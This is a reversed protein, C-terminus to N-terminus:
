LVRPIHDQSLEQPIRDDEDVLLENSQRRGSHFDTDHGPDESSRSNKFPTQSGTATVYNSHKPIQASGATESESSLPDKKTM